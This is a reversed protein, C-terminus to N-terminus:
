CKTVQFYTNAFHESGSAASKTKSMALKPQANEGGNLKRLADRVVIPDFDQLDEIGGEGSAAAAALGLGVGLSGLGLDGLADLQLSGVQGEALLERAM